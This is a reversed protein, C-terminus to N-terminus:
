PFSHDDRDDRSADFETFLVQDGHGPRQGGGSYGKGEM